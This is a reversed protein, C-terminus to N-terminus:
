FVIRGEVNNVKYLHAFFSYLIFTTIYMYECGYKKLNFLRKNYFIDFMLKAWKQFNKNRQTCGHKDPIM